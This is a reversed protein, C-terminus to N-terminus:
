LSIYKSAISTILASDIGSSLFTGVPVDSVIQKKVSENLLEDLHDLENDFSYSNNIKNSFEINWYKKIHIGNKSKLNDFNEEFDLSFNNLDIKLYTAQPLKFCNKYITEPNPIYNYILYNYFASNSIKKDFNPFNSITKLDSSFGFCNPSSENM